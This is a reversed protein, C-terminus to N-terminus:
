ISIRVGQGLLAQMNRQAEELPVNRSQLFDVARNIGGNDPNRALELAERYTPDAMLSRVHQSRRRPALKAGLASFAATGAVVLWLSYGFLYEWFPVAYRPLPDPLYGGAQLDRIEDPDLPIFWDSKGNEVMHKEQLVYGDDSLYVGAVFFYITTKFALYYDKEDIEIETIRHISEDPGFLMDARVPSASLGLLIVILSLVKAM